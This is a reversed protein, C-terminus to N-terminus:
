VHLRVRLVRDIWVSVKPWHHVSYQCCAVSGWNAVSITTSTRTVAVLVADSKDFFTNPDGERPNLSVSLHPSM